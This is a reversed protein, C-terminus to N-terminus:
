GHHIGLLKARRCRKLGLNSNALDKEVKHGRYKAFSDCLNLMPSQPMLQESM